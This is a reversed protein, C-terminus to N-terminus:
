DEMKKPYGMQVWVFINMPYARFLGALVPLRNPLRNPYVCSFSNSYVMSNSHTLYTVGSKLEASSKSFSISLSYIHSPIARLSSTFLRKTFM